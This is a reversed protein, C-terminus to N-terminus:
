SSLLWAELIGQTKKLMNFDKQFSGKAEAEGLELTYLRRSRVVGACSKQGHTRDGHQLLFVKKCWFHRLFEKKAM